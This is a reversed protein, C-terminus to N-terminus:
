QNLLYIYISKNAIALNGEVLTTGIQMEVRLAYFHKGEVAKGVSNHDDNKLKM